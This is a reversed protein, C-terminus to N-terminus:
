YLKRFTEDGWRKRAEEPYARAFERQNPQTLERRFERKQSERHNKAAYDGVEITGDLCVECGHVLTGRRAINKLTASDRGCNPCKTM